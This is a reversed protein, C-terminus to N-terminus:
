NLKICHQYVLLAFYKTSILTTIYVMIYIEQQMVNQQRNQHVMMVMHHWSNTLKIGAQSRVNSNGGRHLKTGTPDLKDLYDQYSTQHKALTGEHLDAIDWEADLVNVCYNHLMM